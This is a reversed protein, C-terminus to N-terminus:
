LVTKAVMADLGDARRATYTREGAALRVPQGLFIPAQARFAFAAPEGETRRALGFLRAATFPGHVVLAPYGEEGQAYPLDYHIRHGNFTAASFRFLDAEGPTWIEGSGPEGATVPPTQGGAERYVLTQREVVHNTGRQAIVHEVDVLVLTGSGGARHRVDRITSTRTAPAGLALRGTFRIEASAFMRRPLTIPPLFGGRKPHGDDGVQDAGVVPLFLAWHGLSPWHREVDLEEGLAAAFRRLAEPDVMEERQEQRGVWTQWHAITGADITM